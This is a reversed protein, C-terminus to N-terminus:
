SVYYYVIPIDQENLILLIDRLQRSNSIIILLIEAVTKYLIFYGRYGQYGRGSAKWMGGSQDVKSWFVNNNHLVCAKILRSTIHINYPSIDM